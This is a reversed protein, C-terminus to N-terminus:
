KNADNNFNNCRQTCLSTYDKFCIIIFSYRIFSDEIHSVSVQVPNLVGRFAKLLREGENDGSKCNAFVLLPSWNRINPPTVERVVFRQKNKRWGVLTLSICHPPLILTRYRGFDCISSKSRLCGDHCAEHCWICKLDCLRPEIGCPCGCISCYSCLPLNGRIWHHQIHARRSLVLAKCAFRKNAQDMCEEHVSLECNECHEGRVLHSECVNCYSPKALFETFSWHHGKHPYIRLGSRNRFSLIKTALWSIVVFFICCFLIQLPDGRWQWLTEM